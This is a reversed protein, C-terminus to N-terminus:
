WFVEVLSSMVARVTVGSDDCFYLRIIFYRFFKLNSVKRKRLSTIPASEETM